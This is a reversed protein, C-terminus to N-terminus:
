EINQVQERIQEIAVKLDVAQKATGALVAKAGLTNAERNLEQTVFDLRRGHPGGGQLANHAEVTQISLRDLEEAVDAKQALLAVEQALRQPDLEVALASIRQELRGQLERTLGATGTRAEATIREIDALHQQLVTEIGAGERARHAILEDLAQEFAQKVNAVFVEPDGRGDVMVGPWRLLEMPTPPTSEPSDRRLQELTALLQVLLPRNIVFAGGSSDDIRLTCDLKGRKLRKRIIERLAPEHQRLTEPLRFSTDLYRNNVSRLEWVITAGEYDLQTRAFATMSYIM